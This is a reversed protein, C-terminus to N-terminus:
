NAVYEAAFGCWVAVTEKAAKADAESAFCAVTDYYSCYLCGGDVVKIWCPVYCDKHQGEPEVGPWNYHNTTKLVFFTGESAEESYVVTGILDQDPDASEGTIGYKLSVIKGKSQSVTVQDGYESIYATKIDSGIKEEEPKPDSCGVFVSGLLLAGALALLVKKTSKM